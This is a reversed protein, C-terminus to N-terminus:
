AKGGSARKRAEGIDIVTAGTPATKEAAAKKAPAKKAAAKKNRTKGAAKKAARGEVRTAKKGTMAPPEIRTGVAPMIRTGAEGNMAPVVETLSAIVATGGRAVFRMCAKVKPGMSGAKFHGAAAYGEMEALTVAGLAQQEPAGYHIYAQPVDTLILLAEAAVEQALLAAALDKDIVADIGALAGSRSRVVPVGGGGACIVCLGQGLMERIAALPVIEVPEPSPVVRRWGRGADERMALGEELMLKRAQAESYFPGVPKSPSAFAEDKPDVAVQTLLTVVPVPLRRMRLQNQLTQELMYGIQGQSMAGCVDMPMPAVTKAALANQILLNGVQPGNGHTLVVRWGNEILEAIRRMAGDINFLQEEFTGVQGPQLIANGGLAVVVTKGNKKGPASM